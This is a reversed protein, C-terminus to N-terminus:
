YVSLYIPASYFADVVVFIIITAPLDSFGDVNNGIDAAATTSDYGGGQKTIPTTTNHQKRTMSSAKTLCRELGSWSMQQAKEIESM